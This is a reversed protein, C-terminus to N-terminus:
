TEWFTPALGSEYIARAIVCLNHAVIKALVCNVQSTATRGMVSADFKAKIMSFTTEVQSRRHYYEKFQDNHLLFFALHRDWVSNDKHFTANRAFPIYSDIGLSELRELNDESMYGGDAVIDKVTFTRMTADLLGPFEMIDGNQERSANAATVIHTRVGTIIHTKVWVAITKEKGWKEDFWRIYVKTGFGSSDPAFTTEIDKMPMSSERILDKLIATTEEQDMFDLLKNYSYPRSIIGDAASQRIDFNFRRASLKAYARDITGFVLDAIPISPRGTLQAPPDPIGSCLSALLIKFLGKENRAFKNYMQWHTQENPASPPEVLANSPIYLSPNAQIITPPSTIRTPHSKTQEEKMLHFQLGYIHKCTVSRTEHDACNCHSGDDDIAIRYSITPDTQSPTIWGGPVKFYPTTAAIALGRRIRGEQGESQGTWQAVTYQSVNPANM